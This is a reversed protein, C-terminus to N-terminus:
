AKGKTSQIHGDGDADTNTYSENQLADRELLEKLLSLKKPEM